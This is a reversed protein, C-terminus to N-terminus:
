NMVGNGSKIVFNNWVLDMEDDIFKHVRLLMEHEARYHAHRDIATYSLYKRFKGVTKLKSLLALSTPRATRWFDHSCSPM